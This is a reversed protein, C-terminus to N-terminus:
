DPPQDVDIDASPNPDFGPSLREIGDAYRIIPTDPKNPCSRANHGKFSCIGCTVTRTKSKKPPDEKPSLKQWPVGFPEPIINLVATALCIYKEKTWGQALAWNAYDLFVKDEPNRNKRHAKVIREVKSVVAGAAHM